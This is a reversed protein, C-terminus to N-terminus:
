TGSTATLTKANQLAQWQDPLLEHLRKVPHSQIRQLVDKLYEWTNIKNKRCTAAFTMLVAATHGGTESGVFLWNKRGIAIPRIANEALNNDIPLRGDELYVNLPKWIGLTYEIAKRLPSQPLIDGRTLMKQLWPYIKDQILRLSKDQRVAKREDPPLRKIDEEIKYLTSIMTLMEMAERPASDQAKKFYRRAHVWCGSHIIDSPKGERTPKFLGNYGAFADALLYGKYGKFFEEPGDGGRDLTFNYLTYKLGEGGLTAWIRATRVGPAPGNRMDVPTDDNLVIDCELIAKRMLEYLPMLVAAISEMWDSMVQRSINVGLREMIVEQRFLPLHHEFKDVAVKALMGADAECRNIPGEAAPAQTVTGHECTCDPCAYKPRLYANVFLMAPQCDIRETVDTGIQKKPKGCPCVKDEEKVDLLHEERKLHEPFPSRGHKHRTHAKIEVTTASSEPTTVPAPINKELSLLLENMLLQDPNIKESSRGYVKRLLDDMRQQMLRIKTELNEIVQQSTETLRRTQEEFSATLQRVQEELLANRELLSKITPETSTMIPIIGYPLIFNDSFLM